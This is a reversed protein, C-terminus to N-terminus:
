ALGTISLAWDASLRAYAQQGNCKDPEGDGLWTPRRRRRAKCLAPRAASTVITQTRSQWRRLGADRAGVDRSEKSSLVPVVALVIARGRMDRLGCEPRHRGAQPDSARVTM